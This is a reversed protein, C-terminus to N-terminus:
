PVSLSRAPSVGAAPRRGAAGVVKPHQGRAPRAALRAGAIRIALPLYGCCWVVEAAASLNAAIREPGAIRGLLELAQAEPLVDLHLLRTGELTALVRRSTILVGCTPSGPPLPRIQGSGAANDLVVLLHRGAALSRFRATAEEVETPIQGPEIGLGRLM